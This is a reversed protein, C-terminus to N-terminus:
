PVFYSLFMTFKKFMHKFIYPQVINFELSLWFFITYFVHAINAIHEGGGKGQIWAAIRGLNRQEHAWALAELLEQLAAAEQWFPHLYWFFHM